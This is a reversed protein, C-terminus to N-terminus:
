NSDYLYGEAAGNSDIFRSLRGDIGYNFSIQRGFMDTVRIPRHDGVQTSQVEGYADVAYVGDPGMTSNSFSITLTRGDSSTVSTLAGYIDYTESLAESPFVARWGTPTIGNFVRILSEKTPSDVVWTQLNNTITSDVLHALMMQGDSRFLAADSGNVEISASYSGIWQPTISNSGRIVDSLYQLKWPIDVASASSETFRKGGSAISVPRSTTPCSRANLDPDPGTRRSCTTGGPDLTWTGFRCKNITGEPVCRYDGGDGRLDYGPLCVYQIYIYEYSYPGPTTNSAYASCSEIFGAQVIVGGWGTHPAYQPERCDWLAKVRPDTCVSFDDPGLIDWPAGCTTSQEILRKYTTPPRIVAAAVSPTTDALALVLNCPVLTLIVFFRLTHWLKPGRTGKIRSM